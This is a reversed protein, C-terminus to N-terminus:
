AEKLYKVWRCCFASTGTVRIQPASEVAASNNCWTKDETGGHKHRVATAIWSDAGQLGVASLMTRRASYLSQIKYWREATM